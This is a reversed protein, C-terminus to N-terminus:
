VTLNFLRELVTDERQLISVKRPHPTHTDRQAAAIDAVCEIQVPCIFLRESAAVQSPARLRRGLTTPRM